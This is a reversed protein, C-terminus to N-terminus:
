GKFINTLHFSAVILPIFVICKASIDWEIWSNKACAWVCMSSFFLYPFILTVFIDSLHNHIYPTIYFGFHANFIYEMIMIQIVGFLVYIIWFTQWLHMEGSIAHYFPAFFNLKRLYDKM